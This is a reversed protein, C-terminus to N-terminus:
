DHNRHLILEHSPSLNPDANSDTEDPDKKQKGLSLFPHRDDNPDQSDQFMLEHDRIEKEFELEEKLPHILPGVPKPLAKGKFKSHSIPEHSPSLNPDAHSDTKDLDKKYKGLNLFPHGDNNPDQSDQFM